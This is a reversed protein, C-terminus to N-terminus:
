SADGVLELWRADADMRFAFFMWTGRRVAYEVSDTSLAATIARTEDATLETIEVVFWVRSSGNTTGRKWHRHTEVVLVDTSGRRARRIIAAM